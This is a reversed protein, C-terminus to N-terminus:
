SVNVSLGQPSSNLRVIVAEEMFKNKKAELCTDQIERNWVFFLDDFAAVGNDGFLVSTNCSGKKDWSQLTVYYHSLFLYFSGSHVPQLDLEWHWGPM